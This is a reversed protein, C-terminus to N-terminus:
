QRRQACRPAPRRRPAPSARTFDDTMEADGAREIPQALSQNRWKQYRKKNDDIVYAFGIHRDIGGGRGNHAGNRQQGSGRQFFSQTKHAANSKCSRQPRRKQQHQGQPVMQPRRQGNIHQRRGQADRSQRRLLGGQGATNMGIIYAPGQRDILHRPKRRCRPRNQARTIEKVQGGHFRRKEDVGGDHRRIDVVVTYTVVNQVMTANLRVQSVVGRFMRNPFTDVTFTVPDGVHVRGIDAENVSLWVQIKSLDEAILFLSPTNFSSAVTQGIEVRRDIVVGKVPSAITCYGLTIRARALAAAAARVAMRAQDVSAKGVDVNARSQDYTSQYADYQSASLAVSKRGLRKAREWDARADIYQARDKELNAKAAEVNAQAQALAAGASVVDAAYLSPDIRALVTGKNVPSDYDVEHGRADLGFSAIRGSVQAGVDVVDRPELTGTASVTARLTGVTVPATKFAVPTPARGAWWTWGWDVVLAAAVVILIVKIATKM